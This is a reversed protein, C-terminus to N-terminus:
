TSPNNAGPGDELISYRETPQRCSNIWRLSLLGRYHFHEGFCSFQTSQVFCLPFLGYIRDPNKKKSPWICHSARYLQMKFLSMSQERWWIDNPQDFLPPHPPCPIYCTHPLHSICVFNQNFLRFPLSWESSRLTSPLTINFLIKPFYSKFTHTPNIQSLIPVPPPRYHVKPNWFAPFKKVLRAYQKAEWPSQEM